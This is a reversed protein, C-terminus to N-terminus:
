IGTPSDFFVILGQLNSNTLISSGGTHAAGTPTLKDHVTVPVPMMTKAGEHHHWVCEVWEGNEKKIKCRKSALAEFSGEGFELAAWANARSMDTGLGNLAHQGLIDETKYKIKGQGSMEPVHPVFDPHGFEDFWVGSQQHTFTPDPTGSPRQHSGYYQRVQAMRAPDDAM